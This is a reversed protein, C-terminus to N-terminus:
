TIKLYFFKKYFFVKFKFVLWARCNSYVRNEDPAQFDLTEHINILQARFSPLMQGGQKPKM